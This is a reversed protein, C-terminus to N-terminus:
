SLLFDGMVMDIITLTCPSRPLLAAMIINANTAAM